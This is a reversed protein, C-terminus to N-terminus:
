PLSRRQYKQVQLVLLLDGKKMESAEVYIIVADTLSMQGLRDGRGRMFLLPIGLTAVAVMHAYQCCGGVCTDSAVSGPTVGDLSFAEHHRSPGASLVLFLVGSISAGGCDHLAGHNALV